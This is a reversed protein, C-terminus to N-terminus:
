TPAETGIFLSRASDVQVFLLFHFHLLPCSALLRPLLFSARVEMARTPNEADVGEASTGGGTKNLVQNGVGVTTPSTITATTATKGGTQKNRPVATSTIDRTTSPNCAGRDLTYGDECGTCAGDAGIESSGVASSGVM